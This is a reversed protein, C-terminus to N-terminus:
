SHLVVQILLPLALFRVRWAKLNGKQLHPPAVCTGLLGGFEQPLVTTFGKGLDSQHLETKSDIDPYIEKVSKCLWKIAPASEAPVFYSFFTGTRWNPLVGAGFGALLNFINTGHTTDWGLFGMSLHAMRRQAPTTWVAGILTHPNTTEDYLVHYRFLSNAQQSSALLNQFNQADQRRDWQTLRTHDNLAARDLLKVGPFLNGYRGQIENIILSPRAGYQKLRRVDDVITKRLSDPLAQLPFRLTLTVGGVDCVRM